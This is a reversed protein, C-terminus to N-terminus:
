KYTSSFFLFCLWDNLGNSRGGRGSLRNAASYPKYWEFVAHPQLTNIDRRRPPTDEKGQSVAM